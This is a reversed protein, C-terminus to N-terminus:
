GDRTGDQGIRANQNEIFRGTGDIGARLHENLFGHLLQHLVAGAKHNRMPEGSDARRIENQRHVMAPNNFHAPVLLKQLLATKIRLKIIALKCSHLM